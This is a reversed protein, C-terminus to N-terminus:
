HRFFTRIRVWDNKLMADLSLEPSSFYHWPDLGYDESCLLGKSFM